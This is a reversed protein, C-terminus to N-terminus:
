QELQARFVRSCHQFLRKRALLSADPAGINLNSEGEAHHGNSAIADRLEEVDAASQESVLSAEDSGLLVKDCSRSQCRM